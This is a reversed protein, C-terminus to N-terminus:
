EKGYVKKLFSLRHILCPGHEALASYHAKTGYGKHIEFGYQPYEQAMQLMYQSDALFVDRGEKDKAM